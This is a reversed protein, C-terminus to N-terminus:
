YSLSKLRYGVKKDNGAYIQITKQSNRVNEKREIKMGHVEHTYRTRTSRAHHTCIRETETGAVNSFTAASPGGWLCASAVM